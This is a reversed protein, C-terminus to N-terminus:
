VVKYFMLKESYPVSKTSTQVEFTNGHKCSLKLSIIIESM